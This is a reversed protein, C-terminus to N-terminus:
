KQNKKRRRGEAVMGAASLLMLIFMWTVPTEDGTKASNDSKVNDNQATQEPNIAYSNRRAILVDEM